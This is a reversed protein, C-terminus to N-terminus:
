DVRIMKRTATYNETEMQYYYVGNETLDATNLEVSHKGLEYYGQFSKILQGNIDLISLTVNSSSPLDFEITTEGNFPNPVNQYLIPEELLESVRNAIPNVEYNERYIESNFGSKALSVVSSPITNESKVTLYFLAEDEQVSILESRAISVNIQGDTYFSESDEIVLRGSELNVFEVQDAFDLSLQFGYINEEQDFYVPVLYENDSELDLIDHKLGTHLSRNHAVDDNELNLVVSGNVDGIKVGIFDNDMMDQGVQSLNISEDFPWPTLPNIFNFNEEVFRWSNNQPLESYIGLILKRLEVLDIGNISQSDNIDAAILKYPSNLTEIGLIHRQIIVLDLTSIGNLYDDISVADIRYDQNTTMDGFAFHGNSDTNKVQMSNTTMSMLEVPVDEIMQNEETFIDGEINIVPRSGITDCVNGNVEVNVTSTCFDQNGDSDTFWVEVSQFGLQSCTFERTTDNLDDASFSVTLNGGCGDESGLDFDNALVQVSPQGNSGESTIETTVVGRCFPTPMQNDSVVAQYSCTSTADCQGTATWVIDYTGVGLEQSATNGSGSDNVGSGTLSWTIDSRSLETGFCADVATPILFNVFATCNDSSADVVINDSCDSITPGTTNNLRIIQTDTYIGEDPNTVPDFICWNVITWTRITKVCYGDVNFFSNDDFSFALRACLDADTVIVGNITPFQGLDSDFGDCEEITIDAPFRFSNATLGDDGTVRITQTCNSVANADGNVGIVWTRVFSGVGCDDDMNSVNRIDIISPVACEGSLVPEGFRSEPNDVNCSNIVIESTPCMVAADNNKDQVVVNVTCMSSKGAADSVRLEVPITEGAELCCFQVFEGFRTDDRDMLANDCPNSFRRVALSVDGGCLAYSGDDLSPGFLRGWGNDALSVATFQDCVAIPPNNNTVAIEIFCSSSENGCGDAIIYRVWHQGVGLDNLRFTSNALPTATFIEGLAPDFAFADRTRTFEVRLINIDSCDSLFLETDSGDVLPTVVYDTACGNDATITIDGMTSCIPAENDVVRITQFHQRYEGLCWDLVTWQRRKSFDLCSNMSDDDGVIFEDTFSVNLKCFDDEDLPWGGLM